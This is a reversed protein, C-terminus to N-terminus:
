HEMIKEFLPFTSLIVKGSSDGTLIKNGVRHHHM